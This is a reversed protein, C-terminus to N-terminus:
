RASENIKSRAEHFSRYIEDPFRLIGEADDLFDCHKVLSKWINILFTHLTCIFIHIKYAM